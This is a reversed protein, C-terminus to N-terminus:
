EVDDDDETDEGELDALRGSLDALFNFNDAVKEFTDAFTRFLEECPGHDRNKKAQALWRKWDEAKQESHSALLQVTLFM